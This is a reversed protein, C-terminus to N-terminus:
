RLKKLKHFDNDKKEKESQNIGNLQTNIICKDQKIDM